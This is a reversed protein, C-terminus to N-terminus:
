QWSTVHITQLRFM